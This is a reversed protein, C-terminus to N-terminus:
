YVIYSTYPVIQFSTHSFHDLQARVAAMVKPHCHGINLVGIGGYFDIMERGDTTKIIANSASDVFWDCMVSAGNPIADRMRTILDNM